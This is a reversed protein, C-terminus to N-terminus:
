KIRLPEDGDKHGDREKRAPKVAHKVPAQMKGMATIKKANAMASVPAAAADAVKFQAVMNQLAEAQSSMQEASAALQEAASANSETISTNQEMAAAQEQTANAVQQLQGSVKKISETIGRVIEGAEQSIKVGHAVQRLNEKILNQIEKASTASREALQRVEDAVVAFGKGHEGARAAEIAANLALLNTQDAIDTILEVAEAMQKSGKEIGTMAEVNSDMAQGAKQADRSMDQSIQNADKVNEANAQVSSSLEEFSASQQQAGDAIQQSGSSVENTADLLQGASSRIESVIGGLKVSLNDMSLSLTGLEDNRNINMRQTLDGEAMAGSVVGCRAVAGAVPMMFITSIIFILLIGGGFVAGLLIWVFIIKQAADKEDAACRATAMTVVDDIKKRHDNYFNKIDGRLLAKALEKDGAQIAPLYQKDVIDYFKMAPVYGDNILANKLVGEEFGQAWYEHRATFDNKLSTLKDILPRIENKEADLMQIVVLYSELIYEPPPLIDAVLDKGQVIRKYIPGNVKLHNLANFAICAFISFLIVVTGFLKARLDLKFM